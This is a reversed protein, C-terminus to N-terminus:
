MLLRENHFLSTKVPEKTKWWCCSRARLWQPKPSEAATEVSCEPTLSQILDTCQECEFHIKRSNHCLNALTKLISMEQNLSINKHILNNRVSEHSVTTWSKLVGEHGKIICQLQPFNYKFFVRWTYPVKQTSRKTMLHTLVLHKNEGTNWSAINIWDAFAAWYTRLVVPTHRTLGLKEQEQPPLPNPLVSLAEM